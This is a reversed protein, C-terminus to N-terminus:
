SFLALQRRAHVVSPMTFENETNLNKDYLRTSHIIKRLEEMLGDRKVM